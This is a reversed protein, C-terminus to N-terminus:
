SANPRHISLSNSLSTARQICRAAGLALRGRKRRLVAFYSTVLPHWPGRMLPGHDATPRMQRRRGCTRGKKRGRGRSDATSTRRRNGPLGYTGSPTPRVSRRGPQASFTTGCLDRLYASPSSSEAVGDRPADTPRVQIESEPENGLAKRQTWQPKMGKPNLPRLSRM